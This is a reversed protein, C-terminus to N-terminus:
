QLKTRAPSQQKQNFKSQRTSAGKGIDYASNNKRSTAALREWITGGEFECPSPPDKHHSCLRFSVHFLSRAFIELSGDQTEM